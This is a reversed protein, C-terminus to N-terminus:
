EKELLLLKENIDISESIAIDKYHKLFLNTEPTDFKSNFYQCNRYGQEVKADADEQHPYHFSEAARCLKIKIHNKHLRYGLDNDECGWSGDYGEDFMNVRLLNQKSVSVNCTFFFVWPAPLESIEDQYKLYYRERVDTTM